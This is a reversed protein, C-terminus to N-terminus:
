DPKQVPARGHAEENHQVNAYVGRRTRVKIEPRTVYVKIGHFDRDSNRRDTRYAVVFETGIEEVVKGAMMECTVPKEKEEVYEPKASKTPQAELRKDSDWVLGGTEEALGKLTLEAAELQRVYNRVPEYRKKVKPDIMEYWSLKNFVRARLERIMM